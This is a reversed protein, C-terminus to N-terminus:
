KDLARMLITATEARTLSDASRLMNDSGQILGAAVLQGVANKANDSVSAADSFESLDAAEPLSVSRHNMFRWLMLMMQERSLMSNPEAAWSDDDTLIGTQKGWAVASDYWNGRDEQAAANGDARCLMTALEAM